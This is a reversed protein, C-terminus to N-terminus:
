ITREPSLDGILKINRKFLKRLQNKIKWIQKPTRNYGIHIDSICIIKKRKRKKRKGM